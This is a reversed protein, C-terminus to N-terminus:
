IKEGYSLDGADGLGPVIYSKQNLEEDIDGVWISAEPIAEQVFDAGPRSAIAAVIHIKAPKGHSEQLGELAKVLSQGTALMPDVLIVTKGELTPSALYGMEIQFSNDASYEGRFAGIFGNEACDFMSLFGQYFPLGARMITILVPQEVLMPTEKQGLPTVVTQNKYALEKSIEYALLMGLRELNNRFRMRDQQVQTDRLEAVFHNAITNVQSLVFM